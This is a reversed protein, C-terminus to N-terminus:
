GHPLAKIEQLKAELEGLYNVLEVDIAEETFIWATEQKKYHGSITTYGDETAIKVDGVQVSGDNYALRSAEDIFRQANEPPIVLKIKEDPNYNDPDLDYTDDEAVIEITGDILLRWTYDISAQGNLHYYVPIELVPHQKAMKTILPRLHDCLGAYVFANCKPNIAASHLSLKNHGLEQNKKNLWENFLQESEKEFDIM